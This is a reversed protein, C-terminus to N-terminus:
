LEEFQKELELIERKCIDIVCDVMDNSMRINCCDKVYSDTNLRSLLIKRTRMEEKLEVARNFVRLEM